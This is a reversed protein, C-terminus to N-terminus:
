SCCSQCCFRSHSLTYEQYLNNNFLHLYLLGISSCNYSIYMLFHSNKISGRSSGQGPELIISLMDRHSNCRSRLHFNGSSCNLLLGCLRLCQCIRDRSLINCSSYGLLLWFIYRLSGQIYILNFICWIHSLSMDSCHFKYRHHVCMNKLM